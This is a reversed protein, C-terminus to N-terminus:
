ARSKLVSETEAAALSPEVSVRDRSVVVPIGMADLVKRSEDPSLTQM